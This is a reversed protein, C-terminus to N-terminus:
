QPSGEALRVLEEDSLDEVCGAQPAVAASRMPPLDKRALAKVEAFLSPLSRELYFQTAKLDGREAADRLRRVWWAVNTAWARNLARLVAPHREMAVTIEAPIFGCHMACSNVDLGTSCLAAAMALTATRLDTGCSLREDSLHAPLADVRGSFNPVPPLKNFGGSLEQLLKQDDTEV